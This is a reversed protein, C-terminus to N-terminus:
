RSLIDQLLRFRQTWAPINFPIRQRARLEDLTPVTPAGVTELLRIACAAILLELELLIERFRGDDQPISGFDKNYSDYLLMRGRLHEEEQIDRSIDERALGGLTRRCMVFLRMAQFFVAPGILFGLPSMMNHANHILYAPALM